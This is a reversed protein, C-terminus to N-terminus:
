SCRRQRIAEAANRELAAYGDDDVIARIERRRAADEVVVYLEFEEYPTGYCKLDQFRGLYHQIGMFSGTLAQMSDEGMNVSEFVEAHHSISFTCEYYHRGDAAAIKRPRAISVVIPFTGNGDTASLERECVEIPEFAEATSSV